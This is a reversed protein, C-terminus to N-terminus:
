LVLQTGNALEAYSCITVEGAGYELAKFGCNLKPLMGSHVTGAEVLNGAESQSISSIVSQPQDIFELVGKHEFAYILDVEGKTAFQKTLYLAITDANTNLLSGTEVDYSLACFVPTVKKETLVEFLVPFPTEFIPDGVFGFNVPVAPRKNAPICQGDAGTLGVANVGLKQLQGTIVKNISTYSQIVIELMELTTVRRGDIFVSEVGLQKAMATASKGGGHILVKHGEIAAFKELFRACQGPHELITGGIKVITTKM